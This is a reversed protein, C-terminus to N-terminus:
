PGTRSGSNSGSYEVGVGGQGRPHGTGISLDVGTLTPEETYEQFEVCSFSHLHPSFPLKCGTFVCEITLTEYTIYM